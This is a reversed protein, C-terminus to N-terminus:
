YRSQPLGHIPTQRHTFFRRPSVVWKWSNCYNLTDHSTSGIISITTPRGFAFMYRLHDTLITRLSPYRVGKRPLKNWVFAGSCLRFNQLIEDVMTVHIDVYLADSAAILNSSSSSSRAAKLGGRLAPTDDDSIYCVGSLRSNWCSLDYPLIAIQNDKKRVGLSIGVHPHKIKGTCREYLSVLRAMVNYGNIRENLVEYFILLLVFSEGQGLGTGPSGGLPPAKGHREESECPKPPMTGVVQPMRDAHAACHQPMFASNMPLLVAHQPFVLLRCRNYVIM